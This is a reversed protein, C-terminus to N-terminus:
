LLTLDTILGLPAEDACTSCDGVTGVVAYTTVKDTEFDNVQVPDIVAGSADFSTISRRIFEIVSGDAQVDCLKEWEVDPTAVPCAGAQMGALETADTIVTVGDAETAYAAFAVGNADLVSHHWVTRRSGDAATICAAEKQVNRCSM